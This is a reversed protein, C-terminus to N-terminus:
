TPSPLQLQSETEQGMTPSASTPLLFGDIIKKDEGGMTMIDFGEKDEFDIDGM